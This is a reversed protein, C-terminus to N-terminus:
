VGYSTVKNEIDSYGDRQMGLKPHFVFWNSNPQLKKWYIDLCLEHNKERHELFHQHLLFSSEELNQLLKETFEKTILYGSTTQADTVKRLFPWITEESNLINGALLICDFEIENAFVATLLFECYEKDMRFVFDDELIICNTHPSQLFIHLANRHAYACGLIGLEPISVGPVRITKSLLGMTDLEQEIEERRDTRHDLNIYYVCDIHEMRCGM